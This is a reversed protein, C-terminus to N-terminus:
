RCSPTPEENNDTAVSLLSEHVFSWRYGAEVCYWWGPKTTQGPREFLTMVIRGAWPAEAPSDVRVIQGISLAATPYHVRRVKGNAKTLLKRGEDDSIEAPRGPQLLIKRDPQFFVKLPKDIAEIWM